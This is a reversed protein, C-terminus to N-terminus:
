TENSHRDPDFGTRLRQEWRRIEKERVVAWSTPFDSLPDDNLASEAVGLNYIVCISFLDDSGMTIHKGAECVQAIESRLSSLRTDDISDLDYLSARSRSTVHTVNRSDGDEDIRFSQGRLLLSANQVQALLPRPVALSSRASFPKREFYQRFFQLNSRLRRSSIEYENVTMIVAFLLGRVREGLRYYRELEVTEETKRIWRWFSPDSGDIMERIRQQHITIKDIATDLCQIQPSSHQSLQTPPLSADVRDLAAKIEYILKAKQFQIEARVQVSYLKPEPLWSWLSYQNIIRMLHFGPFFLSSPHHLDEYDSLTITMAYAEVFTRFTNTMTDKEVCFKLSFADFQTGVDWAM